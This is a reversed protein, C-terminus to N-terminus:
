ERLKKQILLSIKEESLEFHNYVDKYPASEGFQDIGFSMGNNRIYKQWSMISGAEITVVM